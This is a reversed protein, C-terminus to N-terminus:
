YGPSDTNVGNSVAGDTLQAYDPKVTAAIVMKRAPEVIMSWEEKTIFRTRKVATTKNAGITHWTGNKNQNYQLELEWFSGFTPCQKGSDLKTMLMYSNWVQAHSLGSSSLALVALGEELHDKILIYYNMTEVVKNGEMDRMGDEDFPSGVVEITGPKHRGKFGGRDPGWCVWLKEYDVVIVEIKPGYLFKTLTNMFMGNKAGVVYAPNQEETEPCGKTLIKIFPIKIDGAGFKEAGQGAMADLFSDNSKVDEM